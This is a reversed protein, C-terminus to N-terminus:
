VKVGDVGWGIGMWDGNNWRGGIVLICFGGGFTFGIRNGWFAYLCCSVSMIYLINYIYYIIIGIGKIGLTEHTHKGKDRIM